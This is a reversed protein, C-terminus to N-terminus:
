LELGTANTDNEVLLGVDLMTKVAIRVDAIAQEM